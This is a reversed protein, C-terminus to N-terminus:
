PCLSTTRMWGAIALRGDPFVRSWTGSANRREIAVPAGRDIYDQPRGGPRNRLIVGRRVRCVHGLREGPRLERPNSSISGNADPRRCNIGITMVEAQKLGRHALKVRGSTSYGVISDGHLGLARLPLERNPLQLGALKMGAPCPLTITPSPGRPHKPLTSPGAPLRIRATVVTLGEPIPAGRTVVRGKSDRVSLLQFPAPDGPAHVESGLVAIGGTAAVAVALTAGVAAKTAGGGAVHMLGGLLPLGLVPNLAGLRKSLRRIDRQYARCTACDKLHRLAHESPRVAREHADLLAARMDSCDADRADRTKILNARARTALKQAAMVSVGLQAAVQEPTQDDLERALLATRQAVPLDALDDILRRISEKSRLVTEPDQRDGVAAEPDLAEDGWRARRVEDIARNRTLRYLWPRLEDPGDGRRLVDHARILVDQVVDEADHESRRLLTRAYRTLSRRHRDDLTAFAAVDGAGVRRALDSDDSRLPHIVSAM